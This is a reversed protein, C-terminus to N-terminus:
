QNYIRAKPFSGNHKKLIKELSFLPITPPLKPDIIRLDRNNEINIQRNKLISFHKLQSEINELPIKAIENTGLKVPFGTLLEILIKAPTGHTVLLIHKKDGILPILTQKIFNSIRVRVMEDNEGLNDKFISNDWGHVDQGQPGKVEQHPVGDFIGSDVEILKYEIKKKLHHLQLGQALIDATEMTRILPSVFVALTNEDNVNEMNKLKKAKEKTEEIGKATLHFTRGPRNSSSHVKLLNHEGEGHRIIFLLPKIAKKKIIPTDQIPQSCSNFLLVM